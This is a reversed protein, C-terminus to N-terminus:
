NTGLLVIHLYEIDLLIIDLPKSLSGTAMSLDLDGEYDWNEFAEVIAAYYGEQVQEETMWFEVVDFGDDGEIRTVYPKGPDYPPTPANLVQELDVEFVDDGNGGSIFDNGGTHTARDNGDRLVIKDYFPSDLVYDNGAGADVYNKLGYALLVLDDGSFALVYTNADECACLVDDGNTGRIVDVNSHWSAGPDAVAVTWATLLVSMCVLLAIVYGLDRANASVLITMRGDEKDHLM